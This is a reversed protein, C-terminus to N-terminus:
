ENKNNKYIKISHGYLAYVMCWIIVIFIMIGFTQGIAIIPDGLLSTFKTYIFGYIIVPIIGHPFLIYFRTRIFAFVGGLIFSLILGGWGFCTWGLLALRSNPAFHVDTLGPYVINSLQLGLNIDLSSYDIIRLPALIGQFLYLIPHNIIVADMKNYPLAMWYMDGFAIIREAVGQSANVINSGSHIMIVIIPFTCIFLIYKKYKKLNISKRCYYFIYFFYGYAFILISSRSGSLICFVFAFVLSIKALLIKYKVGLLYYSYTITFFLSFSQFYSLIGWGGAGSFTETHTSKFIPIGLVMYTLVHSLICLGFMLKFISFSAKGDNMKYDNFSTNKKRFLFYALWFVTEISILYIIYENSIVGSFYLFVPVTNAFAAGILAFFVPDLVSKVIVRILFYYITGVLGLSLLYLWVNESLIDLFDFITM